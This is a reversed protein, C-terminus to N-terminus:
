RGPRATAAPPVGLGACVRGVFAAEEVAEPRVVAQPDAGRARKVFTEMRDWDEGVLRGVERTRAMWYDRESLRDALM